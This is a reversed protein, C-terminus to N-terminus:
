LIIICGWFAGYALCSVEVIIDCCHVIQWFVNSSDYYVAYGYTM